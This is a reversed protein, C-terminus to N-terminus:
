CVICVNLTKKKEKKVKSSDQGSAAKSNGSGHNESFSKSKTRFASTQRPRSETAISTSGNSAVHHKIVEKGNKSKGPVTATAHRHSSAKM